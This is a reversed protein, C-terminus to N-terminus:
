SWFDLAEQKGIGAQALISAVTKPPLARRNRPVQVVYRRGDRMGEYTDHGGRRVLELGYHRLLGIVQESSKNRLSHGGRPM